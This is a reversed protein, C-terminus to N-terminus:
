PASRTRWIACSGTPASTSRRSAAGRCFTTSSTSWFCVRGLAEIAERGPAAFGALTVVTALYDLAQLAGENQRNLRKVEAQSTYTGRHYEFYLEGEIVALDAGATELRDFFADPGRMAARPAGLLDATRSLTEIMGATPGGGGDGHGFLYLGDVGRDADKYNAAHYRLEELTAVGNYTDAPPFHTLM